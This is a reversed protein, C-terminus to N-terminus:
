AVNFDGGIIVPKLSSNELEKLYKHFDMDWQDVRYSLRKCGEGANPVYVSVLFFKEFETTVV